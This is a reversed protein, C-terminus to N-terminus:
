EIDPITTLRADEWLHELDYFKRTDPVFVHVMVDTFDMAVWVAQELGVCHAPKEHLKERCRDAIEGSIAETQTPSGGECIIFCSAIAGEMGRLDVVVINHGKKEQIGEIITKVLKDTNDM